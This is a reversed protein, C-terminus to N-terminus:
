TYHNAVSDILQFAQTWIEASAYCSKKKSLGVGVWYPHQQPGVPPATFQSEDV